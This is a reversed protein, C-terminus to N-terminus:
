KSTKRSQPNNIEFLEDFDGSADRSTKSLVVEQVFKSKKYGDPPKFYAKPVNIHEVTKTKIYVRLQGTEDMGSMADRGRLTKMFRLPIGGNTPLRYAAYLIAEVAPEANPIYECVSRPGVYRKTALGEFKSDTIPGDGGVTRNQPKLVFETLLGTKVFESLSKQTYTKDDDRFVTVTWDPSTAVLTYKMRGKNNIRVAHKAVITETDGWYFHTQTLKLAAEGGSVKAFCDPSNLLFAAVLSSTLLVYRKM